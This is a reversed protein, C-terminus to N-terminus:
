PLRILAGNVMLDMEVLNVISATMLDVMVDVMFVVM